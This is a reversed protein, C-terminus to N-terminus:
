FITHWTRDHTPHRVPASGIRARGHTRAFSRSISLIYASIEPLRSHDARCRAWRKLGLSSLGLWRIPRRGPVRRAGCHIPDAALQGRGSLEVRNRCKVEALHWTCIEKGSDVCFDGCHFFLRTTPSNELDKRSLPSGPLVRVQLGNNFGSISHLQNKLCKRADHM